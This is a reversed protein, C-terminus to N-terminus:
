AHAVHKSNGDLILVMFHMLMHSYLMITWNLHNNSTNNDLLYKQIAYQIDLFDQGGKHTYESYLVLSRPCVYSVFFFYLKKDM